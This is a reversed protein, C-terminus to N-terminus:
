AGLRADAAAVESTTSAGTTSVSEAEPEETSRSALWYIVAGIMLVPAATLFVTTGLFAVRAAENQAAFCVPCAYALSPLASATLFACAASLTL